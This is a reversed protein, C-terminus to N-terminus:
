GRIGSGGIGDSPGRRLSVIGRWANVSRRPIAAHPMDGQRKRCQEELWLNFAGWTAFRPIPVMFNRRSYGVLGEVGGNAMPSSGIAGCHSM